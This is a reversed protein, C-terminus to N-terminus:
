GTRRSRRVTPSGAARSLLAQLAPNTDYEHQAATIVIAPQLLLSGDENVVVVFRQNKYGPITTRGRDDTEILITM